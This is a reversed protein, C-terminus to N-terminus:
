AALLNVEALTSNQPLQWESEDSDVFRVSQVQKGEEQLLVKVLEPLEAELADRDHDFVLLGRLDPSEAKWLGTKHHQAFYIRYKVREM